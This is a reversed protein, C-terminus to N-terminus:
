ELLTCASVTSKLETFYFALTFHGEVLYENTANSCVGLM